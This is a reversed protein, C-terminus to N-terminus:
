QLSLANDNISGRAERDAIDGKASQVYTKYRTLSVSRINQYFFGYVAIVTCTSRKVLSCYSSSLELPM